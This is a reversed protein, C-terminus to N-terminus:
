HQASRRKRAAWMIGGGAVIVVAAAGAILPTSNSSGTEALDGPSSPEASAPPVAASSTATSPTDSPTESPSPTSSPTESPTPSPTNNECVPATETLDRSFKDNDGAKVVLRLSLEKDHKPLELKKDFSGRFTETPLLDKGDVTVTVTNDDKSSYATLHVTVDTCTVKWEPTHAQATGAALGVGFVGAAAVAAFAGARRWSRNNTTM